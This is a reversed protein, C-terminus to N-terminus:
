CRWRRSCRTRMLPACCAFDRRKWWGACNRVPTASGSASSNRTAAACPTSHRFACRWCRWGAEGRAGTRFARAAGRGARVAAARRLEHCSRVRRLRLAFRSPQRAVARELGEAVGYRLGEASYDMAVLPLNRERQLRRALYGTGCGAELARAPRRRKELYPALVGLQIARMGRYWWFSEEHRAINAFEAPNFRDAAHPALRSPIVRGPSPTRRRGVARLRRRTPLRRCQSLIGTGPPLVRNYPPHRPQFGRKPSWGLDNRIRASDSYYSGIDIRKLEAPFPQFVPRRRCRGRRFRRDRDGLAATGARGGVNWMRNPPNTQRARACSRM